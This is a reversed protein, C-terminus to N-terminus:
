RHYRLIKRVYERNGTIAHGANYASLAKAYNGRYRGLQRELYKSAYELNVDPKMLDSYPGKFGFDKATSPKIQALGVSQKASPAGRELNVKRPKFSSETAVLGELVSPKIHHRQAAHEILHLMEPTPKDAHAAGSLSMLAAISLRKWGAVKEFGACFGRM